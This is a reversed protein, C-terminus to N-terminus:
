YRNEASTTFIDDPGELYIKSYHWSSASRGCYKAMFSLLDRSRQQCYPPLLFVLNTGVKAFRASRYIALQADCSM